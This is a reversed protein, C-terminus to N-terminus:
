KYAKLAKDAELTQEIFYEVREKIDLSDPETELKNEFTKLEEALDVLGIIQISGRMKHTTKALQEWNKQNLLILMEEHVERIQTSYIQLIEKIFDENGNASEKLYDLNIPM